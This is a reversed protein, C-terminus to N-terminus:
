RQHLARRSVPFILLIFACIAALSSIALAVKVTTPPDYAVRVRHSGPPLPIALRSRPSRFVPTAVGDVTAHFGRLYNFRTELADGEASSLSVEYPLTSIQKIALGSSEYTAVCLDSWRIPGQVEPVRAMGVEFEAAAGSFNTVPFTYRRPWRIDARTFLVKNRYINLAYPVDGSYASHFSFMAQQNAPLVFKSAPYVTHQPASPFSCSTGSCSPSLQPVIKGKGALCGSVVTDMNSTKVQGSKADIIQEFLEPDYRTALFDVDATIRFFNYPMTMVQSRDFLRDSEDRTKAHAAGYGVIKSAEFTAWPLAVLSIVGVMRFMFDGRTFDRLTLVIAVVVGSAIFKYLKQYLVHFNLDEFQHPLSAIFSKTLGPIPFIYACILALPVVITLVDWRRKLVAGAMSGLFVACLGYGLQVSQEPHATDVPLMAGPWLSQVLESAQRVFGASVFFSDQNGRSTDLSSIEAVYMSALYWSSLLLFTGGALVNNLMIARISTQRLPLSCLAILAAFIGTMLGTPAHIMWQITLCGALVIAPKPAFHRTMLVSAVMAAPVFPTTFFSPYTDHTYLLSITSPSLLFLLVLLACIWPRHPLLQRLSFYPVFVHLMGFIVTTLNFAQNVSLLHFTTADVSVFLHYFLLSIVLPYATFNYETQGVYVPFIGQKAQLIADGALYRYWLSDGGGLVRGNIFPMMILLAAVVLLLIPGYARVEPPLPYPLPWKLKRLTQAQM